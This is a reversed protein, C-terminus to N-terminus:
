KTGKKTKLDYILKDVLVILEENLIFKVFRDWEDEVSFDWGCSCEYIKLLYIEGTESTFFFYNTVTDNENQWNENLSVAFPTNNRKLIKQFLSLTKKPSHLDGDQYHNEYLAKIFEIDIEFLDKVVM